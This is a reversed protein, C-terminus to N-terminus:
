GPSQGRRVREFRVAGVEDLTETELRARKAAERREREAETLEYRKVEQFADAIEDRAIVIRQEVEAISEALHAQRELGARIFAGLSPQPMAQADAFAEERAIEAAVADAQERLHAALAQLESLARRKEDLRFRSLRILGALKSM